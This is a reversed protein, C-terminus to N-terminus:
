RYPHKFLDIAFWIRVAQSCRLHQCLIDHRSLSFRPLLPIWYQLLDAFGKGYCIWMGTQRLAVYHKRQIFDSKSFSNLQWNCRSCQCRRTNPARSFLIFCGTWNLCSLTFYFKWLSLRVWVASQSGPMVQLRMCCLKKMFNFHELSFQDQNHCFAINSRRVSQWIPKPM